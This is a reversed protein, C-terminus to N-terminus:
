LRAVEPYSLPFEDSLQLRPDEGYGTLFHQSRLSHKRLDTVANNLPDNHDFGIVLPTSNYEDQGFIHQILARLINANNNKVLACHAYHYSLSSGTKPIIFGGFLYCYFNYLHRILLFKKQYGTVRTQKFPKQDWIGLVGVIRSQEFALYFDSIKLNRYFGSCQDIQDFDYHPYFQKAPANDNFFQQLSHIDHATAARIKLGPASSTKLKRQPFITHTVFETHPFYAPMGGRSKSVTEMSKKNDSLIVTHAWEDDGMLKKLQGVMRFMARSGQYDPHIRLDGTYRIRTIEGNIYVERFGASFMGGIKQKKRDEYVYIVPENSTTAIAEFYSPEREFCLNVLGQQPASKLLNRIALDDSDQALRVTWGKEM